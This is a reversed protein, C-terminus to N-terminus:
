HVADILPLRRMTTAPYDPDLLAAPRFGPESARMAGIAAHLEAADGRQMALAVQYRRTSVFDPRYRLAMRAHTTAADYDLLATAAMCAFHEFFFCTRARTTLDVAKRASRYGEIADGNAVQVNSLMAWGLPDGGDIEVSRRVMRLATRLDGERVYELHAAISLVLPDAPAARVAESLLQPTELDRRLFGDDRHVFFALNRIFACWALYQGRPELDHARILRREAEILSARDLEFTLGRASRALLWARPGADQDADADSVCRLLEDVAVSTLRSLESSARLAEPHVATVVSDSWVWRGSAPRDVHCSTFVENDSAIAKIRLRAHEIPSAGGASAGTGDLLVEIGGVDRLAACVRDQLLSAAVASFPAGGIEQEIVVVSRRSAARRATSVRPPGAKRSRERVRVRLDRIYDEFAPDNVEIGEFPEVDQEDTGAPWDYRVQLRGGDLCVDTRTASLVDRHEGLACRIESLASRLSGAAQAPARDSWLKAQLWARTRKLGPAVCLLVLLARAKMGRPAVDRGRPDLLMFPGIADVRLTM